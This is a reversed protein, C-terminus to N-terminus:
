EIIDAPRVMDAPMEGGAFIEMIATQYQNVYTEDARIPLCMMAALVCISLIRKM